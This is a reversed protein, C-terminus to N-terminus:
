SHFPLFIATDFKTFNVRVYFFGSAYYQLDHHFFLITKLHYKELKAWDTNIKYILYSFLQFKSTAFTQLTNMEIAIFMTNKKARVQQM